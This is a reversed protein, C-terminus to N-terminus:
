GQVFKMGLGATAEYGERLSEEWTLYDQSRLASDSTQKWLPTDSLYYMIHWGYESEVLGTDGDQRAPDIAWNKFNEVYNSSATINPILGGNVASGTDASNEMALQAFSEQTAEGKKWQELLDEAKAKAAALQDATPEKAGEDTEPAILIHRVNDTPDENRYRDEFRAVYYYHNSSAGYDALTIDGSQRAEDLAWESYASNVASGLRVEGISTSFLDAEYEKALAQADEGAELRDMLEEAKAKVAAKADEFKAAKEEETMEITEGAEDTTPVTARLAFQTIVFSDMSDANEQYYAEYDADTYTISGMKTQIYDNVYVTMTCMEAFRDYTMYPGYGSQIYEDLSSFGAKERASNLAELEQDLYTQAEESMTYGEAKAAAELATFTEASDLAQEMLYDFWTQGTTSDYVQSKLSASTNFPSTGLYQYYYSMTDQKATNFFYQMDGTTYKTDKVTAATAGRQIMGTNWMLVVALLAVCLVGVVAYLLNTRKDKAEEQQKQLEREALVEAAGEKQNKKKKSASM